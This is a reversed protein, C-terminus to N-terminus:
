PRAVTEKDRTKKTICPGVKKKINELESTKSANFSSREALVRNFPAIFFHMDQGIAANM